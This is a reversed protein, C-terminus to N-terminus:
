QFKTTCILRYHDHFLRSGENSLIFPMHSFEIFAFPYFSYAIRFAETTNHLRHSEVTVIPQLISWTTRDGYLHTFITTLELM